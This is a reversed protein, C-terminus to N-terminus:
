AMGPTSPRSGKGAGSGGYPAAQARGQRLSSRITVTTGHRGAAVTTDALLWMMRLGRGRHTGAPADRWQGHDCIVITMGADSIEALVEVFPETPHRAHEIANSVAECAVLLLDYREDESLHAGELFADLSRRLVTVSREIVPLRWHQRRSSAGGDHSTDGSPPSGQWRQVEASEEDVPRPRPTTV